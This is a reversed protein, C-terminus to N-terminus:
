RPDGEPQKPTPPDPDVIVLVRGQRLLTAEAPRSALEAADARTLVIETRGPGGARLAQRLHLRAAQEAPASDPSRGADAPPGPLAELGEPRDDGNPSSTAEPLRPSATAQTLEAATRTTEVYRVLPRRGAARRSVTGCDYLVAQDDDVIAPFLCPRLGTGRADIVLFGATNAAQDGTLPLRARRIRLVNGRHTGSVKAALGEVGWLPVAVEVVCEPPRREPHWDEKIVRQGRLTGSVEVVGDDLDQLRGQGDLPLGAAILLANRLAVVKGGRRALAEDKSSTGGAKGIGRAIVIGATWDIQGGDIPQRHSTFGDPLVPSHPSAHVPEVGAFLVGTALWVAL